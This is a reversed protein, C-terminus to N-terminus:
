VGFSMSSFRMKREEEWILRGRAWSVEGEKRRNGAWRGEGEEEALRSSRATAAWWRWCGNAWGAQAGEHGLKRRRGLEAV